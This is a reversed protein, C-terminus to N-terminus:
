KCKRVKKKIEDELMELAHLMAFDWIIWRADSVAGYWDENKIDVRLAALDDLISERAIEKQKKIIEEIKM